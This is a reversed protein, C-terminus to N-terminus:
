RVLNVMEFLPAYMSIVITGVLLGTILILIPEIITLAQKTSSDITADYHQALADLTEVLTESKEGSEVIAGIFSDSFSYGINEHYSQNVKTALLRKSYFRNVLSRSSKQYADEISDGLLTFMSFYGFFHSYSVKKMIGSLLPISSFVRHKIKEWFAIKLIAIGLIVYIIYEKIHEVITMVVKTILPVEIHCDIFMANFQPLVFIVLITTMSFLITLQTNPYTLIKEINKKNNRRREIDIRIQKMLKRAIEASNVSNMSKLKRLPEFFTLNLIDQEKSPVKVNVSDTLISEALLRLNKNNSTKKMMELSNELSTNSISMIELQHCFLSITELSISKSM